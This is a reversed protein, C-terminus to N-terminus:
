SRGHCHKYKKGSGCYCPDNRGIKNSGALVRAPKARKSHSAAARATKETNPGRGNGTGAGAAVPEREPAEPVIQNEQLILAATPQWLIHFIQYVVNKRFMVQFQEFMAFAERKYAVLPDQQAFAQLLAGERLEDMADVHHIWLGSM